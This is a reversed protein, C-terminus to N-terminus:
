LYFIRVNSSVEAFSTWIFSLKTFSGFGNAGIDVVAVVEGLAINLSVLSLLQTNEIPSNTGVISVNKNVLSIVTNLYNGPNVNLTAVEGSVITYAKTITLCPSSPIQGCLNYDFGGTESVYVTNYGCGASSLLCDYIRALSNGIVIFQTPSSTSSSTNVSSTSYYAHGNVSADYIDNGSNTNGAANSIFQVNSIVREGDVGSNGYIAGGYGSAKLNSFKSNILSFYTGEGLYIGGGNGSVNINDFGSNIISINGCNSIWLGGGNSYIGTGNVNVGSINVNNVLVFATNSGSSYFVGGNFSSGGGVSISSINLYELSIKGGPGVLSIIGGSSNSINVGYINTNVVGVTAANSQSTSGIFVGGSSLVSNNFVCGDILLSGPGNLLLITTSVQIFTFIVDAFDCNGNNTVVVFSSSVLSAATNLNKVFVDMVYGSGGNINIATGTVTSNFVFTLYSLDLLGGSSINFLITIGTNSFQLSSVDTGNGFIHVKKNTINVGSNMRYVSSVLIISYYDVSYTTLINPITRCADDATKCNGNDNQKNEDVYFLDVDCFPTLLGSHDAGGSVVLNPTGSSSCCRFVSVTTYFSSSGTNDYIDSAHSASNNSFRCMYYSFQKTGLYITGRGGNTTQCNQFVCKDITSSTDLRSAQMAIVSGDKGCSINTFTSNVLGISSINAGFYFAGGNHNNTGVVNEIVSNEFNFFAVPTTTFVYYYHTFLSARQDTSSYPNTFIINFFTSNLVTTRLNGSDYYTNLIVSQSNNSRINTFSTNTIYLDANSSYVWAFFFITSFDSYYNDTLNLSSFTCNVVRIEGVYFCFVPGTITSVGTFQVSNLNLISPYSNAYYFYYYSSGQPFNLAFVLSEINVAFTSSTNIVIYNSFNTTLVPLLGQENAIGRVNSVSKSFTFSSFTYNGYLYSVFQNTTSVISYAFSFTACPQISNGCIGVDYGAGSLYVNLDSACTTIILCDFRINLGGVVVVFVQGTSTSNSYSVTSNTYYSASAAGTAASNDYVDSGV